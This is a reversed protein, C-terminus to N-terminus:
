DLEPHSTLTVFPIKGEAFVPGSFREPRPLRGRYKAKPLFRM